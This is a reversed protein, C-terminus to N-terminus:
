RAVRLLISWSKWEMNSCGISGELFRQDYFQRHIRKLTTEKISQLGVELNTFGAKWLKEAKIPNVDEANCEAHFHLGRDQNLNVLGDLLREL